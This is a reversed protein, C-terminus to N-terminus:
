SSSCQLEDLVNQKDSQQAESEGDSVTFPSHEDQKRAEHM